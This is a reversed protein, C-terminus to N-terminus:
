SQLFSVSVFSVDQTIQLWDHVYPTASLTSKLGIAVILLDNEKNNSMEYVLGSSPSRLVQKPEPNKYIPYVPVSSEIEKTISFYLCFLLVPLSIMYILFAKISFDKTTTNM